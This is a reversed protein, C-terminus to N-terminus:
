HHYLPLKCLPTGDIQNYKLYIDIDITVKIM